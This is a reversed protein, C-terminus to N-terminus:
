DLARLFRRYDASVDQAEAFVRAREAELCRLYAQAAEIYVEFDGRILDAYARIDQPAAPLFPPEPPSCLAGAPGAAALSALLLL